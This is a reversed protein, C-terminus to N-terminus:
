LGRLHLLYLVHRQNCGRTSKYLGTCLSHKRHATQAPLPSHMTDLLACCGLDGIYVLATSERHRLVHPPVLKLELCEAKHHNTKFKAESKCLFRLAGLSFLSMSAARSKTSQNTYM